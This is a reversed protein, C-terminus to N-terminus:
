NELSSAGALGTYILLMYEYKLQKHPNLNSETSLEELLIHTVSLNPFDFLLQRRQCLKGSLRM